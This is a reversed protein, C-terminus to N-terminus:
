QRRKALKPKVHLKCTFLDDVNICLERCISSLYQPNYSCDLLSDGYDFSITNRIHCNSSWKATAASPPMSGDPCFVNKTPSTAMFKVTSQRIYETDM